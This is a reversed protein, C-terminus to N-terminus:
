RFFSEYIADGVGNIKLQFADLYEHLGRQIIDDADEAELESRLAALREEAPTAHTELASGTIAHLSREAKRVCYAMSRPFERDLTLYSTVKFPTIRRFRKRYMELASASKLLASWQIEDYPSGVDSPAPLLLFYKVDLIRSTKDARELLRGLRAFHWAENHSMTVYTVGIHQQSALKVAAYLEHPARLREESHAAADRLMLYASNISEWMESSIIERISRANERAARFCSLISNPYRTDFTLFQLVNERTAKGYAEAFWADDSTTAVIPEWQEHEGPSLDLALHLNVDVFRAVNEAREVYRHMWYVADAVRSLM